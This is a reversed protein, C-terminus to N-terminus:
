AAAAAATSVMSHEPKMVAEARRVVAGGAGTDTPAALSPRAPRHAPCAAYRACPVTAHDWGVVFLGSATGLPQFRKVSPSTTSSRSGTVGRQVSWVGCRRRTSCRRRPVRGARAAHLQDVQAPRDVADPDIGTGAERGTVVGRVDEGAGDPDPSRPRRRGVLRTREGPDGTAPPAVPSRGTRPDPQGLWAEGFRISGAGLRSEPCGTAAPRRATM